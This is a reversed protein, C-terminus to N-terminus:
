SVLSNTSVARGGGVDMLACGSTHFTLVNRRQGSKHQPRVRGGEKEREGEKEWVSFASGETLTVETRSYSVGAATESACAPDIM